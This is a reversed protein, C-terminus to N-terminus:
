HRSPNKEPADPIEVWHDEIEIVVHDNPMLFTFCTYELDSNGSMQQAEGNVYLRYYHETITPLKIIVEEGPSYSKKLENALVFDDAITGQYEAKHSCSAFPMITVAVIVFLILKKM